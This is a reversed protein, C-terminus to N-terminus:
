RSSKRFGAAVAEAETNFCRPSKLTNYFAGGPVHYIKSTMNGKVPCLKDASAGLVQTPAQPEDKKNSDATTSVSSKTIYNAQQNQIKERNINVEREYRGTGFGIVFVLLFCVALVLKQKNEEFKTKIEQYTIM